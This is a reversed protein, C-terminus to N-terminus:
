LIFFYSSLKKKKQYILGKELFTFIESFLVIKPFFDMKQFFHIKISFFNKKSFKIWFNQSDLKSISRLSLTLIVFFMFVRFRNPSNPIYFSCLYFVFLLLIFFGMIYPRKGFIRDFVNVYM